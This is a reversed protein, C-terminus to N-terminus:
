CLELRKERELDSAYGPVIKVGYENTMLFLTKQPDLIMHHGTQLSIDCLHM